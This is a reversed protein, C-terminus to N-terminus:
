VCLLTVCLLDYVVAALLHSLLCVVLPPACCRTTTTNNSTLACHCPLPPPTTMAMDHVPM